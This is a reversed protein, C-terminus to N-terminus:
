KGLKYCVMVGGRYPFWEGSKNWHDADEYRQGTSLNYGHYYGQQNGGGVFIDILFKDNVPVKFGITAGLLLSYGEQYEGSNFYNWKQMKYKSGGVHGGIYFGKEITNFHYRVEPIVIIFKQPASNVSEWLSAMVDAQFTFKKGIKTEVGIQPIGVISTINAKLITQAFVNCSILLM